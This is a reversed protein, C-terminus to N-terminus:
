LRSYICSNAEMSGPHGDCQPVVLECPKRVVIVKSFFEPFVIAEIAFVDVRIAAPFREKGRKGLFAGSDGGSKNDPTHVLRFDVVARAQAKIEDRRM